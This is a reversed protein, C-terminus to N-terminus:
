PIRTPPIENTPPNAAYDAGTVKIDFSLKGDDVLLKAKTGDPYLNMAVSDSATALCLLGAFSPNAGEGNVEKPHNTDEKSEETATAENTHEKDQLVHFTSKTSKSDITM